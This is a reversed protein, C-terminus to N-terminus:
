EQVGTLIVDDINWGSMPWAEKDKIEYGWRIYVKEQHDAIFGLSSVVVQWSEDTLPAEANEHEWLATWLTGDTSAEVTARVFDAEDTNLWRAFRLKVDRYLSCDFPGATLYHPGDVTVSYDGHLNVGYVNDGIYGGTPDPYGHETGGRGDPVGFQWLGEATWAPQTDLTTEFITQRAGRRWDQALLAFDKMDIRTYFDLDPSDCPLAVTQLWHQALFALDEFGVGEPDVFDGVLIQEWALRPYSPRGCCMKWVTDTGDYSKGVFDWGATLYTLLSQMEATTEGTGADSTSLGSTEIDWFSNKVLTPDSTGVLGNVVSDATEGRVKGTAYCRLVPGGQNTGILGGVGRRGRVDGRAYSDTVVPNYVFVPDDKASWGILGGVCSDGAVHGGAWSATITGRNVGVLGGVFDSDAVVCGTSYSRVLEGEHRGVLGGAYQTASV